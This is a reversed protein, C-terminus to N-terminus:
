GKVGKKGEIILDGLMDRARAIAEAEPRDRFTDVLDSEVLATLTAARDPGEPLEAKLTARAEELFTLFAGYECGIFSEIDKRLRKTLAPCGGGTSIAVTLGGRGTVSPVIFNGAHPPNVCNVLLGASLADRCVGVNVDPNDTAAVVLRAGDLDAPSYARRVLTVKGSGALADISQDVEPSVVTVAAGAGLLSGVKRAAVPGAGVVLARLGSADLFLPYFGSV